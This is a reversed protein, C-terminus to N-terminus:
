RPSSTKREFLCIYPSSCREATLTILMPASLSRKLNKVVLILEQLRVELPLYDITMLVVTLSRYYDLGRVPARDTHENPNPISPACVFSLSFFETQIM